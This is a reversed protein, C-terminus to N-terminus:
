SKRSKRQERLKRLERPERLERRDGTEKKRVIKGRQPPLNRNKQKQQRRYTSHSWDSIVHSMAGLELGLCLAIWETTHHTLSRKVTEWWTQWHWGVNWVFQAIGLFFLGLISLWIALYILRIITGIAFGHSLISRHKVTKQYPIWIWRAYGWRQYQRSYLDLDPGFMLGSFLYAGSLILTINGSQTQGFAIGAVVPLSWLTIRDHTQGSPM